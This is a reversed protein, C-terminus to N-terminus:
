KGGHYNISSHSLSFYLSLLTAFPTSSDPARALWLLRACTSHLLDWWPLPDVITPGCRVARSEVLTAAPPDGLPAAVVATGTPCAARAQPLLPHQLLFDVMFTGVCHAAARCPSSPSPTNRICRWSIQRHRPPCVVCLGCCCLNITDVIAGM